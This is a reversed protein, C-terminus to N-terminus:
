FEIKLIRMKMMGDGVGALFRMAGSVSKTKLDHYGLMYPKSSVRAKKFWPALDKQPDAVSFYKTIDTIGATKVWTKLMVKVATKNAIDCVLCGGPFQAEMAQFLKKVEDSVFYYFVGAAFFFVGESADIQSFWATDNLDAGINTTRADPPLM